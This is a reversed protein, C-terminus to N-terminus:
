PCAHCHFPLARVHCGLPSRLQGDECCEREREEGRHARLRRDLCSRDDDQRIRGPIEPPLLLPDPFADGLRQGKAEHLHRRQGLDIALAELPQGPGLGPVILGRERRRAGEARIDRDVALHPARPRIQGDHRAVDLELALPALPDREVGDRHRVPGEHLPKAAKREGIGARQLDGQAVALAGAHLFPRARRGRRAGELGEHPPLLRRVSAALFAILHRDLQDALRDLDVGLEHHGLVREARDVLVEAIAPLGRRLEAGRGLEIRRIGLGVLREAVEGEGRRAGLEVLGDLGIGLRELDPWKEGVRVHPQAVGLRGLTVHVPRHDGILLRQPEIREIGLHM